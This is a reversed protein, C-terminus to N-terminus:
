PGGCRQSVPALRSTDFGRAEAIAKIAAMTEDPLRAQRALIWLYRRNPHGVLSWSYDDALAIIFYKGKFPNNQFSVYLRSWDGQTMPWAQGVAREWQDDRFCTNVVKIRGDDKLSYTATTCRCGKEFWAPISAVAHWHGLYRQPDVQDVTELPWEPAAADQIAATWACGALFFAPIFFLTWWRSFIM